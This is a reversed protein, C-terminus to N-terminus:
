KAIFEHCKPCTPFNLIFHCNPCTKLDDTQANQQAAVVREFEILPCVRREFREEMNTEDTHIHHHGCFMCQRDEGMNARVFNLLNHSAELLKM